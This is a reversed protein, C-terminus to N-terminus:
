AATDLELDHREDCGLHQELERDFKLKLARAADQYANSDSWNKSPMLINSPVEKCSNPVMLGFVSDREFNQECLAGSLASRILARTHTLSIRNGIGVGGGIWGTNVLWVKTDHSILKDRLLNAYNLPPRPMFPAGYCTSFTAQPENGLGKETGAVKSTYGMLFHEIAQELTLKSIPPLVGFADLTLFIITKPHKGTGDPSAGDIHNLPYASRTNETLSVDTFDPKGNPQLVVNELIAGHRTSAAYIEPEKEATLDIAKAYCGGEFNFIGDNDWGHEDDGILNRGADASLTTKGTGSLGFFLATDGTPGTNASCHMPLIGDTPLTFNLLSFASKKIEGAYDTGGILILKDTFSIVVFTGTRTGDEAPVAELSPCQIITWDAEFGPLTEKRPRQLMTRAFATHWAKECVVQISLSNKGTGVYLDQSYMEKGAIHNKVKAKLKSFSQQTISKNVAGWNVDNETIPDRVIFRDKPSRGTHIGTRAVFAGDASIIGEHNKVARLILEKRSLNHTLISSSLMQNAEM